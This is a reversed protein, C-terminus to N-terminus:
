TEKIQLTTFLLRSVTYITVMKNNFEQGDLARVYYLSYGVLSSLNTSDSIFFNMQEAEKDRSTKDLKKAYSSTKQTFFIM